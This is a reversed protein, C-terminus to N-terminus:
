DEEVIEKFRGWQSSNRYLTLCGAPVHLTCTEFMATSFTADTCMPPLDATQVYLHQLPCGDFCYDSLYSTRSGLIVTTLNRCEQFLGAPIREVGDPMTVAEMEAAYFAGRGIERVTAPLKIQQLRCRRFAYPGVSELMAPLSPLEEKGQPFWILQTLAKDYLVGDQSSYTDNSAIVEISLLSACSDSPLVEVADAPILLSTLAPCDKFANEEICKTNDPLSLKQLYSCHAFLGYGAVNDETYRTGDYSIGGSCITADTLDLVSMRGSTERGDVDRGLMDRILRLDSGNLPGAISLATYAYKEEDGVIESLLGAQTTVIAQGTRFSFSESRTEGISNSAYAQVVYTTQRELGGIRTRFTSGDTSDISKRIEEGNETRYYFGTGTIPEGGDDTVDYQLTISLPGQGIMRLESLVPTRNPLTTFRLLDSRVTSYGNGAELCYYYEKGPLLDTLTVSPQAQSPDCVATKEMDATLGYRFHLVTVEEMGAKTVEGTLLATTRTVEQAEEVTVDPTLYTPKKEEECATLLLTCASLSCLCRIIHHFLRITM